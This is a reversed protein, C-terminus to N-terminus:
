KIQKKVFVKHSREIIRVKTRVPIPPSYQEVTYIKNNALSKVKFQYIDAQTLKDALFPVTIATAAVPLGVGLAGVSGWIAVGLISSGISVGELIGYWLSFSSLATGAVVGSRVGAKKAPKFHDKKGVKQKEIVVGDGHYTTACGFLLSGIFVILIVGRMLRRVKNVDLLCEAM